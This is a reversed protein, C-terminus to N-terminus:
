RQILLIRRDSGASQQSWLMKADWGTCTVAVTLTKAPEKLPKLPACGEDFEPCRFNSDSM